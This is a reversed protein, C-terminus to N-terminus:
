LHFYENRLKTCYTNDHGCSKLFISTQIYCKFIMNFKYDSVKNCNRFIEDCIENKEM